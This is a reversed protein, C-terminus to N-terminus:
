ATVNEKGPNLALERMEKTDKQLEKDGQDAAQAKAAQREVEQLADLRRKTEEAEKGEREERVKREKEERKQTEEAEMAELEDDVETEDVNGQGVETIVNGVEDVQTMQERLQDVVDDVREVGGVQKNLVSLVDTSAEMVRVLDVQDRAQEIKTIVEELLSLTAHRKVLTSEALKKSKLAALASVRHKNAVAQKAALALQDVRQELVTTQAELDKILTKLHAITTDEQAIAEEGRAKIKVTEGDYIVFSKDRALFKLFIEMDEASMSRGLVDGFEEMFLRKSYIRDLLGAKGVCRQEFVNAADEMVAVVVVKGVPLRDEGSEGGGLGLQRFGWVLIAWPSPVAWSRRYVSERAGMFEILEM